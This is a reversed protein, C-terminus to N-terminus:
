KSLYLCQIIFFFLFSFKNVSATNSSRKFEKRKIKGQDELMVCGGTKWCMGLRWSGAKCVRKGVVPWNGGAMGLGGSRKEHGSMNPADFVQVSRHNEGAWVKSSDCDNPPMDKSNKKVQHNIVLTM